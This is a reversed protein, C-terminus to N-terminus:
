DDDRKLWKEKIVQSRLSIYIGNIDWALAAIWPAKVIRDAEWDVLFFHRGFKPHWREVGIPLTSPDAKVSISAYPEIVRPFTSGDAAHTFTYVVKGDPEGWQVSNVIIATDPDPNRIILRSESDIFAVYSAHAYVIQGKSRTITGFAFATTSLVILCMAVSVLVTAKKM